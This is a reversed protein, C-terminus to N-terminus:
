AAQADQMEIVRLYNRLRNEELKQLLRSQHHPMLAQALSASWPASSDFVVGLGFVAPIFAFALERGNERTGTIFDEVATLVGNRPGGKYTAIAFQGHGRFGGGVLLQDSDITVGCDYTFPHRWEAPIADPAYYLDRRAWPWNVDHLIALLPKGDRQCVADIGLLEHYVTYYNHDGDVIWADIGSLDGIAELSPRAVHRVGPHRALWATFEPKVTPDISTLSGGHTATFDALLQSMGGFEAGIEAVHRAEAIDLASLIIDSLEAMSHILLTM